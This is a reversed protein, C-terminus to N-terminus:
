VAIALRKMKERLTKRSIGLLDATKSVSGECRNLVKRIRAREAEEVMTQLPVIAENATDVVAGGADSEPLPM